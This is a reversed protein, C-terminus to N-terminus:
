EDIVEATAGHTGNLARVRIRPRSLSAVLVDHVGGPEIDFGQDHSVIAGGSIQVFHAYRQSRIRVNYVGDAVRHATAELGPDCMVLPGPIRFTNRIYSAGDGLTERLLATVGLVERPGFRFAYAMDHFAGLIGEADFREHGRAPLLCDITQSDVVNDATFIAVSLTAACVAPSDNIAWLDIGSLGEDSWLLAIPSSARKLAYYSSKARGDSAVVGAGPGAVFDRGQLVLVGACQSRPLRWESVASHMAVATAARGFDLYRTPEVRRLAFPDVGYIRAVYRDRTDEMDWAAGHDRPIGRKWAASHLAAGGDVFADTTADDGLNSFALCGTAFKIESRRADDLPRDYAGIGYYTATGENVVFPRAGGHPTDALYAIGPADHAVLEAVAQTFWETADVDISLMAAQQAIEFGGCVVVASPHGALAHLAQRIESEASQSWAADQSPYDLRTFMLQQWVLIGLEDCLAHFGETEYTASAPIAVINMGADRIQQLSERLEAESPNLSIPDPNVWWVGRAFIQEGNIAISPSAGLDVTVSRFGISPLSIVHDIGDITVVICAPYRSQEGHTAPWWAQANPFMLEGVVRTAREMANTSTSSTKIELSVERDGIRLKAATIVARTLLEGAFRATGITAEISTEISQGRLEVAQRERLEVTRYLGVPACPSTWSPMRGLLSTRIWRLNQHDVFNAKWRPRPRKRALETRLARCVVVLENDTTQLNECDIRLAVFMSSSTGVGVGNLWVEAITAIGAFYLECVREGDGADFNTRFWWDHADADMDRADLIKGAKLWSSMATGPVTAPVWDIEGAVM